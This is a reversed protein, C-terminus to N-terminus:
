FLTPSGRPSPPLVADKLLRDLRTELDRIERRRLEIKELLAKIQRMREHLMYDNM